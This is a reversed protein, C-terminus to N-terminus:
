SEGRGAHRNEGGDRLALSVEICIVEVVAQYGAPSFDGPGCHVISQIEELIAAEDGFVSKGLVAGAILLCEALWVVVVQDAELAAIEDFEHVFPEVLELFFDARVLVEGRM